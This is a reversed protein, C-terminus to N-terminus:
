SRFLAKTEVTQNKGIAFLMLDVDPVGLARLSSAAAIQVTTDRSTMITQLDEVIAGRVTDDAERAVAALLDFARPAHSPYSQGVRELVQGCDVVNIRSPHAHACAYLEQLALDVALPEGLHKAIILEYVPVIQELVADNQAFQGGRLVALDAVLQAGNGPLREILSRYLRLVVGINEQTVLNKETFDHVAGFVTAGAWPHNYLLNLYCLALADFVKPDCSQTVLVGHLVPLLRTIVMQEGVSDIPQNFLSHVLLLKPPSPDAQIVVAVEALAENLAQADYNSEAFLGPHMLTHNYRDLLANLRGEHIPLSSPNLSEACTYNKEAEANAHSDYGDSSLHSIESYERALREFLAPNTVPQGIGKKYFDKANVHLARALGMNNAAEACAGQDHYFDGIHAAYGPELTVAKDFTRKAAYTNGLSFQEAGQNYLQDAMPAPQTIPSSCSAGM